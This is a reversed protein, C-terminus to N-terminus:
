EKAKELALAELQAILAQREQRLTEIESDIARLREFISASSGLSVAQL